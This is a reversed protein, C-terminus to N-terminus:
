TDIFHLTYKHVVLSTFMHEKDCWIFYWDKHFHFFTHTHIHCDVKANSMTYPMKYRHMYNSPCIQGCLTSDLLTVMYM